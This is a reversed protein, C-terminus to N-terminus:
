NSVFISLRSLSRFVLLRPSISRPLSRQAVLIHDSDDGASCDLEIHLQSSRRKMSM